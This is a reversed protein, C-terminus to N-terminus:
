ARHHQSPARPPGAALCRRAGGRPRRDGFDARTIRRSRVARRRAQAPYIATWWDGAPEAALGALYRGVPTEQEGHTVVFATLAALQRRLERSATAVKDQATKSEEQLEGLEKLQALGASAKDFPNTKLKWRATNVRRATTAKPPKCLRSLPTSTKSLFWAAAHRSNAAHRHARRSAPTGGGFSLLGERWLGIAAPPVANLIGELQQLGPREHGILTKLGAYKMGASYKHALPLRKALWVWFPKRKAMVM